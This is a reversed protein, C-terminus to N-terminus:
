GLRMIDKEAAACVADLAPTVPKDEAARAEEIAATAAEVTAAVTAGSEHLGNIMNIIENKACTNIKTNLVFVATVSLFLNVAKELEESKATARETAERLEKVADAVAETAIKKMQEATVKGHLLDKLGGKVKGISSLVAIIIALASLVNTALNIWMTSDTIKDIWESYFAKNEEEESPTKETETSSESEPPLTVAEGNEETNDQSIEPPAATDTASAYVPIMFLSFALMVATLLLTIKKM